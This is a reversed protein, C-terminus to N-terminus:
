KKEIGRNWYKDSISSLEDISYLKNNQDSVEAADVDFQLEGGCYDYQHSHQNCVIRICGQSVESQLIELEPMFIEDVNSLVEPESKLDSPWTKFRVNKFGYLRVEFKDFEPFILNALYPIEVEIFMGMPETRSSVICGDHFISFIDSINNSGIIKMQFQDTGM